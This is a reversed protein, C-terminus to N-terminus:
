VSQPAVGLYKYQHLVDGVPYQSIENAQFVSITRDNIDGYKDFSVLGQLTEVHATQIADRVASRTVPAGSEAVRKIADLAVVMCDYATFAYSSPGLGYKETFRKIWPQVAPNEAIFPAAITVYWGQMGPFGVAKLVASSYVGDGGAKIMKPVIEYSQKALKVGALASGGYYFADPNFSKLKNLLTTYDTALPDLEDHGLVEMGIKKAQAEFANAMGVGYAGTDDLVFVKEVNLTQAMFNAMNPGQYADTTVVRFYIPRGSPDFQGAFKPDTIDPNTSSPTITALDGQSFIPAMAKGCGSNQPGVAAVVNPDSVMKRANTAAQAPDYQGATATGDDLVMADIHYGAVGGQANAETIALLAGNKVLIADEAGAGTLSVDIGVSVRKDAAFASRSHFAAALAATPLQTILARRSTM